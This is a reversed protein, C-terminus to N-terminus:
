FAETVYREFFKNKLISPRIERAQRIAETPECRTLKVIALIAILASRNNGGNCHIMVSNGRMVEGVVRQVLQQVDHIPVYSDDLMSVHYYMIGAAGALQAFSLDRVPTVNLVLKVNKTHLKKILREASIYKTHRRIFINQHLQVLMM